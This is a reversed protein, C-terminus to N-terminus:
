GEEASGGFGKKQNKKRKFVSWGVDQRSEIKRGM